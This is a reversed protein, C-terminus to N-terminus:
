EEHKQLEASDDAFSLGLLYTSESNVNILYRTLHASSDTVPERIIDVSTSVPPGPEFMIRVSPALAYVYQM